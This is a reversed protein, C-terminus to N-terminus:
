GGLPGFCKANEPTGAHDSNAFPGFHNDDIAKVCLDNLPPFNCNYVAAAWQWQISSGCCTSNMIGCWTVTGIGGPLGCSPVQFEAGSLFDNGSTNSPVISNWDDNGQGEVSIATTAGPKIIIYSDPPYVTYTHGNACFTITQWTFSIECPSTVNPAKFVANFWIFNGPAIPTGNFNSTICTYGQNGGTALRLAPVPSAQSLCSVAFLSAIISIKQPTNM